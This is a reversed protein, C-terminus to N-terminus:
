SFVVAAILGKWPERNRWRGFGPVLLSFLAAIAPGKWRSKSSAPSDPAPSTLNNKREPNLDTV